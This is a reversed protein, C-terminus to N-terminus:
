RVCTLEDLYNSNESYLTSCSHAITLELNKKKFKISSRCVETTGSAEARVLLQKENNLFKSHKSDVFLSESIKLIYENYNVEPSVVIQSFMIYSMKLHMFAHESLNIEVASGLDKITIKGDRSECVYKIMGANAAISSCLLIVSLILKM